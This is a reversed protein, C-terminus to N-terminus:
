AAIEASEDGSIKRIALLFLKAERIDSPRPCVPCMWRPRRDFLVLNDWVDKVLRGERKILDLLVEEMTHLRTKCRRIYLEDPEVPTGHDTGDLPSAPVDPRKYVVGYLRRYEMGVRRQHDTIQNNAQLIGLLNFSLEPNGDAVDYKRRAQLEPTGKDIAPKRQLRGNPERNGTKRKRGAM